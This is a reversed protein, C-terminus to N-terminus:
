FDRNRLDAGFDTPAAKGEVKSESLFLCRYLVWRGFKLSGEEWVEFFGLENTDM